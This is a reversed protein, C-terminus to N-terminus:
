VHARGIQRLSLLCAADGEKERVCACRRGKGREPEGKRGEFGLLAEAAPRRGGRRRAPRMGALDPRGGGAGDERQESALGPQFGLRNEALGQM